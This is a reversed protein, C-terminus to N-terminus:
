HNTIGCKTQWLKSLTVRAFRAGKQGLEDEKLDL